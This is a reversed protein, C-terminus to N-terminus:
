LLFTFCKVQLFEVNPYKTSLEKVVENMQHCPEAWPAWFNLVALSELNKLLIEQFQEPSQIETLMKLKVQILNNKLKQQGYHIM